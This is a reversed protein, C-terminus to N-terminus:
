RTLISDVSRHARSVPLVTIPARHDHLVQGAIPFVVCTVLLQHLSNAKRKISKNNGARNLKYRQETRDQPPPAINKTTICCVPCFTTFTPFAKGALNCIIRSTTRMM